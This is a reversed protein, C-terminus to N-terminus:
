SYALVSSVSCTGKMPVPRKPPLSFWTLARYISVHGLAERPTGKSPGRGLGKECSIGQIDQQLGPQDLFQLGHLCRDRPLHVHSCGSHTDCLTPHICKLTQIASITHSSFPSRAGAGQRRDQDLIADLTGYTSHQQVFAVSISRSVAGHM